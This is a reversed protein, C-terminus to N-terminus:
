HRHGGAARRPAEDSERARADAESPGDVRARGHGGHGVLHMAIFAVFTLVWFWNERLWEM